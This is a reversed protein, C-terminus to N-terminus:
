INFLDNMTIDRFDQITFNTHNLEEESHTTTVGVVKMGAAHASEIGALSDEFVICDSPSVNLREATLLYIQPDPKGKTVMTDDVIIDFYDKLYTKTLVYEVNVPPASTAIAYKIDAMKLDDLFDKLGPLPKIKKEFLERYTRNIESGYAAIIEKELPKNFLIPLADKDTRGFIKTELDEKSIAINHQKCFAIWAKKHYPNSNIIVGDMDFIVSLSM